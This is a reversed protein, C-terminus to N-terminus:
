LSHKARRSYREKTKIEAIFHIYICAATYCLVIVICLFPNIAFVQLQVILSILKSQHTWSFRNHDIGNGNKKEENIIASWQLGSTVYKLAIHTNTLQKISKMYASTGVYCLLLPLHNNSSQFLSVMWKLLLLTVKHWFLSSTSSYHLIFCLILCQDWSSFDLDNPRQAYIGSLCMLVRTM